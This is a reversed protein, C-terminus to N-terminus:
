VLYAEAEESVDAVMVDAMVMAVAVVMAVV